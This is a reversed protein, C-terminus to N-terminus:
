NLCVSDPCCKNYGYGWGKFNSVGTVGSDCSIQSFSIPNNNITTIKLTGSMPGVSQYSMRIKRPQQNNFKFATWFQYRVTYNRDDETGIIWKNGGGLPFNLSIKVDYSNSVRVNRTTVGSGTFHNIGDLVNVCLTEEASLYLEVTKNNLLALYTSVPVDSGSVKELIYFRLDSKDEGVLLKTGINFGVTNRDGVPTYCMPDNIRAVELDSTNNANLGKEIILMKKDGASDPTSKESPNDNGCSMLAVVSSVLFLKYTKLHKMGLITQKIILISYAVNSVGKRM